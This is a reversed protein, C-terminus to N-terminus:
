APSTGLQRRGRGRLCRGGAGRAHAVARGCVAGGAVQPQTEGSSAWAAPLSPDCSPSFDPPEPSAPFITPFTLSATQSPALSSPVPTSECCAPPLPLSLPRLLPRFVLRGHPIWAWTAAPSVGCLRGNGFHGAGTLCTFPHIRGCGEVRIAACDGSENGATALAGPEAPAGLASIM